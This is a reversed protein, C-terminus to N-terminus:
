RVFAGFKFCPQHQRGESERGAARRVSAVLEASNVAGEEGRATATALGFARPTVPERRRGSYLPKCQYQQAIHLQESLQWGVRLRGPRRLTGERSAVEAIRQHDRAAEAFRPEISCTRRLRRHTGRIDAHNNDRVLEIALGRILEFFVQLPRSFASPGRCWDKPNGGLQLPESVEPAYCSHEAAGARDMEMERERGIVKLMRRNVRVGGRSARRFLM